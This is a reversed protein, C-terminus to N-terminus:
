TARLWNAADGESIPYFKALKKVLRYPIVPDTTRSEVTRYRRGRLLALALQAYRAESRLTGRRHESLMHRYAVGARQQEQRIIKAEAALSKVNVRLQHIAAVRSEFSYVQSM